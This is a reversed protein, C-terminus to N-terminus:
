ATVNVNTQFKMRTCKHRYSVTSCLYDYENFIKKLNNNAEPYTHKNNIEFVLEM